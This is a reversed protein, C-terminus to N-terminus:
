LTIAGLVEVIRQGSQGLPVGVELEVLRRRNDRDLSPNELYADIHTVLEEPSRAFRAAGLEVVPRYHEFRYYYDWLPKGFPPPSAVDFAINVIPKDHIAFDLTMTSALNVNLDAYHTLNALFQLDELLPMVRSWDGPETHLWTPQLYILEPYNRRVNSYRSGDDVPMPRLLIQPNEKIRGARILELLVGVHEPDEPCTGADGGSYCILPRSPDAGVRSFFEERSWLMKENAYPDFQPTGVIHIKEPSVDPYYRLLERRMHESWVMYHDFPAAIRGKSTLNDWSFIFTATPIGLSKAALVPPLIIPPRQHSCFLVSPKIEKLLRRYHEVEPMRDVASCHWRDLMGIGRASAAARGVLQATHVATRTRWSGSIPLSRNYRMAQTDAWYMQAYSLANRLTFSLPKDGYPVLPQWQVKPGLGDSHTTVLNEPFVHLAYVQGKEVAQRLFSGLIFNRVGVGDPILLLLEM